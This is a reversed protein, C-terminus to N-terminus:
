RHLDFNVTADADTVTVTQTQAKRPAATAPCRTVAHARVARPEEDEVLVVPGPELRGTVEQGLKERREGIVELM